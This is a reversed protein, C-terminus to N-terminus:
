ITLERNKIYERLRLLLSASMLSCGLYCGYISVIYSGLSDGRFGKFSHESAYVNTKLIYIFVISVILWISIVVYQVDKELGSKSKIIVGILFTLLAFIPSAIAVYNTMVFSLFPRSESYLGKTHLPYKQILEVLWQYEVQYENPLIIAMVIIIAFHFLATGQIFIETKTKFM